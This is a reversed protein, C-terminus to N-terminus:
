RIQEDTTETTLARRAAHFEKFFLRHPDGPNDLAIVLRDINWNRAFMEGAMDSFPTLARELEAVRARLRAIEDAEEALRHPTM